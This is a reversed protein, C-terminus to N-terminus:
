QRTMKMLMASMEWGAKSDLLLHSMIQFSILLHCNSCGCVRGLMIGRRRGCIWRRLLRLTLDMMLKL